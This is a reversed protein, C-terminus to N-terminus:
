PLDPVTIILTGKEESKERKSSLLFYAAGSGLAAAGGIFYPWKPKGKTKVRVAEIRFVFNEGWLGEPYDTYMNWYIQKGAGPRVESFEGSIAKPEISYTKGGDASLRVQILFNDGQKGLLDYKIVILDDKDVFSVNQVAMKQASANFIFSLLSIITIILEISIKKAKAM